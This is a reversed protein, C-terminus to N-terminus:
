RYDIRSVMNHSMSSLAHGVFVSIIQVLALM